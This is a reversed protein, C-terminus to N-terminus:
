EPYLKLWHSLVLKQVSIVPAKPSCTKQSDIIALSPLMVYMRLCHLLSSNWNAQCLVEQNLIQFNENM